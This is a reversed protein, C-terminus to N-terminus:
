TGECNCSEQGDGYAEQTLDSVEDALKPLDYTVTDLWDRVYEPAEDLRDPGWAISDEVLGPTGDKKLLPGRVVVHILRWSETNGSWSAAIRTPRLIKIGPRRDYPPRPREMDPANTVDGHASWNGSSPLVTKVTTESM